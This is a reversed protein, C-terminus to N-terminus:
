SGLRVYASHVPVGMHTVHGRSAGERDLEGGSTPMCVFHGGRTGMVAGM